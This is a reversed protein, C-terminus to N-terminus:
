SHWPYDHSLIFLWCTGPVNFFEDFSRFMSVSMESLWVKWCCLPMYIGPPGPKLSYWQLQHLSYHCQLWCRRVPSMRALDVNICDIRVLKRMLMLIEFHFLPHAHRIHDRVTRCNLWGPVIAKIQHWTALAFFLHKKSCSCCLREQPERLRMGSRVCAYLQPVIMDSGHRGWQVFCFCHRVCRGFILAVTLWDVLVSASASGHVTDSSCCVWQCFWFGCCPALQQRAECTPGNHCLLDGCLGCNICFWNLGARGGHPNSSPPSWM